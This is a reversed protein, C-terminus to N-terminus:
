RGLRQSLFDMLSRVRAAPQGRGHYVAHVPQIAHVRWEALVEVLEGRERAQATVFDVLSVLGHGAIALALLTDGSSAWLSPTIRLGEDGDHRLPWVNLAQPETFGLLSHHALDQPSSPVGQRALYAPSALVRRPSDFLHRARLSSDPLAGIRLALDARQQVLDVVQDDSILQLEIHPYLARFEALLPVLVHLMLPSATNVRLRGRPVQRDQQVSSEAQEIRSVIARAQRTFHEGEETLRVRRTTRQLLSVGLKEELRKLTRSVASPSQELREAAASFSGADVVSVLVVLEDFTTKM